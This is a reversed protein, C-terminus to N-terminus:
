WTLAGGPHVRTQLLCCLPPSQGSPLHHRPLWTPPGLQPWLTPEEPLSPTPLAVSPMRRQSSSLCFFLCFILYWSFISRSTHAFWYRCDIYLGTGIYSADFYKKIFLNIQHTRLQCCQMMIQPTLFIYLNGPELWLIYTDTARPHPWSM